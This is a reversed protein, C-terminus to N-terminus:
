GDSGRVEQVVAARYFGEIMSDAFKRDPKEPLSSAELAKEVRALGEEIMESVREYPIKGLRIALLLSAEPRPFTLKGTGLFEIAEHAVRVAHMMSKWDNGDMDSTAKIRKGYKDLKGRYVGLATKLSATLPVRTGAVELHPIGTGSITGVGDVSVYEHVLAEREFSDVFYGLVRSSGQELCLRDLLTVVSATSAYRDAKVSYKRVQGRCYGVFPSVSRSLFKDRNTLLAHWEPEPTRLYFEEPTFLMDLAVTQGELLLKVYRDFSFLELDVEDENTTITNKIRQLLISSGSPMFVGKQDEDSEPVNTGYLRSGAQMRIIERM